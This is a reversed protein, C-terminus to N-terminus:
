MHGRVVPPFLNQWCFCIHRFQCFFKEQWLNRATCYQWISPETFKSRLQADQPIIEVAATPPGPFTLPSFPKPLFENPMTGAVPQWVNLGSHTSHRVSCLTSIYLLLRQLLIAAWVLVVPTTLEILWLYSYQFLKYLLVLTTKWPLRATALTGSHATLYM